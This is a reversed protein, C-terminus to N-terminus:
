SAICRIAVKHYVGLTELCKRYLTELWQVHVKYPQFESYLNELLIVVENIVFPHRWM